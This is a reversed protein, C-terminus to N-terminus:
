FSCVDIRSKSLNDPEKASLGSGVKNDGALMTALQLRKEDRMFRNFNRAFLMRLQM